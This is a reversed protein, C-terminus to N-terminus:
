SSRGRNPKPEAPAPQVLGRAAADKVVVAPVQFTTGAKVPKGAVVIDATAKWKDAM